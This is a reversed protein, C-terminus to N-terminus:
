TAFSGTLEQARRGYPGQQLVGAGVQAQRQLQDLQQQAAAVAAVLSDRQQAAAAAQQKHELHAKQQSSSAEDLEAAQLELAAVEQM